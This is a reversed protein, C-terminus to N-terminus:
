FLDLGKKVDHWIEEIIYFPDPDIRLEKDKLVNDTDGALLSKTSRHGLRQHLLELAIKNRSPLKKTESIKKIEGWFQHKSQASQSLTIANKEKAGFNVTYFGKHFLCIHGLDMLPIISFLGDCLGPLLLVNHLTAIFPDGNDNCM